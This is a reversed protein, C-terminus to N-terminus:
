FSALQNRLKYATVCNVLLSAITMPGVGGPVPTIKGAVKSVSAFHVDGQISNDAMRHIGVDIVTAGPKIWDGHVLHHVGTAVIVIEAQRVLDKTNKSDSHLCITTAGAHSLMAATPAGVLLSRGLVAALAGKVPTKAFELLEMIGYPTCPRIGPLNWDLLGQNMPTLGDVDKKPDVALIAETRSMHLPLPLQPLIGDVRDDANLEHILEMLKKQPADKPLRHLVTDIGVSKCATEKNKVYVESAPHDGVLIVALRPARHGNAVLAEVDARVRKKIAQAAIRGDMLEIM